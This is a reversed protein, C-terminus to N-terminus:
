TLDLKTALYLLSVIAYRYVEKDRVDAHIEQRKMYGPDMSINSPRSDELYFKKM